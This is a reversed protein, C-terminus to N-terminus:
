VVDAGPAAPILAKRGITIEGGTTDRETLVVGAKGALEQDLTLELGSLGRGEVGVFGLVQAATSGEPYERAPLRQLEVGPLGESEVRAAANAPVRTALLTWTRDSSEIRAQVDERRMGLADALFSTTRETNNMETRHVYVADYMISLALPHGN